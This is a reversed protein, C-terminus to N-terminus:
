KEEFSIGTESIMYDDTWLPVQSDCWGPVATFSSYGVLPPNGFKNHFPGFINRLNCFVTVEVTNTGARVLSTVDTKKGNFLTRGAFKGNVRIELAAGKVAPRLYYRANEDKEKLEFKNKLRIEGTFFPLGASPLSSPSVIKQREALRFGGMRYCGGDRVAKEAKVSFDGLILVNEIDFIDPVRNFDSECSTMRGLADASEPIINYDCSLELVNTGKRVHACLLDYTGSLYTKGTSEARMGNFVVRYRGGNEVAIKVPLDLDSQFACKMVVACSGLALAKDNIDTVYMEKGVGNDFCATFRDIVFVNPSSDEVSWGDSPLGIFREDIDGAPRSVLLKTELPAFEVRGHPLPVCSLNCTDIEAFDGRAALANNERLTNRAIYVPTGGVIYENVAIIPSSDKMFAKEKLSRVAAVPDCVKVVRCCEGFRAGVAAYDTGLCLVTDYVRRGLRVGNQCAAGEQLLLTSASIHFTIRRAALEKLLEAYLADMSARKENDGECRMADEVPIVVLVDAREGANATIGALRDIHKIFGDAAGFLPNGPMIGSPYDRKRRGRFSYPFIMCINSIGGAIEWDAINKLEDLEAGYGACAFTEAVCEGSGFQRASSSVQRPTADDEGSNRGLWDMGPMQMLRYHAMLDGATDIQFSIAKEELYHGTLIYGNAACWSSLKATYNNVFLDSALKYYLGRVNECGEGNEFLLRWDREIPHGAAAAYAKGLHPSYPVNRLGYQPEDTFFGKIRNGFRKRYEEHTLRIFEDTAEPDLVDVYGTSFKVTVDRGDYVLWGALHKGGEIVAGGAIGSPWGFEDYIWAEMGNAECADVCAGVLSFWEEGLYATKLGSRAHILVGGIGARAMAAIRSRIGDANMDDNFTFFPITRRKEGWKDIIDIIGNM